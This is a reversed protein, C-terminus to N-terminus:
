SDGKHQAHGRSNHKWEPIPYGHALKGIGVHITPVRISVADPVVGRLGNIKALAQRDRSTPVNEGVFQAMGPEIPLMPMQIVAFGFCLLISFFDALM